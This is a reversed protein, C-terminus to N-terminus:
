TIVNKSHLLPMHDRMIMMLPFSTDQRPSAEFKSKLVVCILLLTFTMVLFFIWRWHNWENSFLRSIFDSSCQTTTESTVAVHTTTATTAASTSFSCNYQKEDDVIQLNVLIMPNGYTKKIGCWYTGGDELVLNRMTIVLKGNKNDAISMRKDHCKNVSSKSECLVECNSKWEGRCWFKDYFAFRTRDYNCLITIDEGARGIRTKETSLDKAKLGSWVFLMILFWLFSMM